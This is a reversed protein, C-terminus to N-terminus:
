VIRFGVLRVVVVLLQPINQHGEALCAFLQNVVEIHQTALIEKAACVMGSQINGHPEHIVGIKDGLQTIDQKSQM